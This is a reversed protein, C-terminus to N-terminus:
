RQILVMITIMTFLFSIRREIFEQRLQLLHASQNPLCHHQSSTNFVTQSLSIFFLCSALFLRLYQHNKKGISFMKVNSSTFPSNPPLHLMKHKANSNHKSIELKISQTGLNNHNYTTGFSIGQGRNYSSRGKGKNTDAHLEQTFSNVKAKQVILIAVMAM